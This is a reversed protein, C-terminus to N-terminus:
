IDEYNYVKKMGNEDFKVQCSLENILNISFIFILWNM